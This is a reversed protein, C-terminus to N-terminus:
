PLRAPIGARDTVARWRPGAGAASARVGESASELTTLLVQYSFSEETTGLNFVVLTYTGAAAGAIGVREPKATTSDTVDALDCEQALFQEDSCEGRFLILDIDNSAFTWDVIFELDGARPTVFEGLVGSDPPLGSFSGEELVTTVPTPEPPPPPPATVRDSGCSPLGAALVAALLRGAARRPNANLM